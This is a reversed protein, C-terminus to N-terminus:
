KSDAPKRRNEGGAAGRRGGGETRPEKMKEKQEPTLVAAIEENQTKMLERLKTRDEESLNQRGKAMLEKLAPAHKEYIAKIKGQQEENLGLKETMLKMRAEPDRRLREGKPAEAKEDAALITNPISVLATTAVVSFLLLKKM